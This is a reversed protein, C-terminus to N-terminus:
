RRIREMDARLRDLEDLPLNDAEQNPRLPSVKFDPHEAAVLREVTDMREDLRKAVKYLEELMVDDDTTLRPATKWKTIYHIFFLVPAVVFIGAVAIFGTLDHLV